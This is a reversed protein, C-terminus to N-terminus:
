QRKGLAFIPGNGEDREFGSQVLIAGSESWSYETGAVILAREMVDIEVGHVMLTVRGPLITYDTFVVAGHTFEDEYDPFVFQQPLTIETGVNGFIITRDLDKAPHFITLALRGGEDFAMIEWKGAGRIVHFAAFGGAIVLLAAIVYTAYKM